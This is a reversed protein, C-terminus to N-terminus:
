PRRVMVAVTAANVRQSLLPPLGETVREVGEVWPEPLLPLLYRLKVHGNTLPNGFFRLERVELDAEAALRELEDAYLIFIHGDGNPKFQATEFVSPDPFESFRPLDNRIYAGNPTSLIIFGEPKVLKAISCLFRDPHAVHEIVESVLVADFPEQPSLELVNGPLYRVIGRERKAEVYDALEARIDNWTVDYGREALELTFNGQAAAVDLIRSGLPVFRRICDLLHGMRARYAYAYGSKRAAGHLEIQDYRYSLQWSEPWDASQTVRKM